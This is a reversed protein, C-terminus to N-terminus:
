NMSPHSGLELSHGGRRGPMLDGFLAMNNIQWELKPARWFVTDGLESARVQKMRGHGKEKRRHDIYEFWLEVDAKYRVHGDLLWGLDIESIHKPWKMKNRKGIGEGKEQAQEKKIVEGLIPRKRLNRLGYVRRESRIYAIIDQMLPSLASSASIWTVAAASSRPTRAAPSSVAGRSTTSRM